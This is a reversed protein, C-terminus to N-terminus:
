FSVGIRVIPSQELSNSDENLNWLLYISFFSKEGMPVNVGGGLWVNHQIFRDQNPYLNLVDFETDLSLAEYEAYGVLSGYFNIPIFKNFDKILSYNSFIRGGYIHTEFNDRYYNDKYYKYTLGVGSILRPTLLYGVQPSVNIYTISGFNLALNGGFYLREKLPPKEEKWIQANLTTSFVLTILVHLLTTRFTKIKIM